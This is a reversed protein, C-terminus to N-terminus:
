MHWEVLGNNVAYSVAELRSHVGLKSMLNRIHTRVTLPTISLEEAIVEGSKGRALYTLVEHERPTLREWVQAGQVMVKGRYSVRRLLEVLRESPMVVEGQSVKRLAVLLESLTCSKSLYGKVGLEVARVLKMDDSSRTLVIIRTHPSWNKVKPVIELGDGDPLEIEIILVDPKSSTIMSLSDKFTAVSGTFELDKELAIVRKLADVFIQHDEVIAVTIM